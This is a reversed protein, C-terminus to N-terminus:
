RFALSMNGLLFIRVTIGTASYLIFLLPSHKAPCIYRKLTDLSVSFSSLHM